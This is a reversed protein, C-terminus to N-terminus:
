EIMDVDGDAGGGSAAATTTTATGGGNTSTGDGKASGWYDEMEADLEEQTKRPRGGRTGRERDRDDGGRAAQQERRAGPRRGGIRGDRRPPSRSRPGREGGGRRHSPVYRDIHDPAPKSVDSLRTPPSVSRDSDDMSNDAPAGSVRDFLSRPPRRATDFPNRQQQQRSPALLTLRIPQGNANAGDFERIASKASTLSTYTVFAVGSSRGARDYRISVNSVPGIRNFLDELDEQTLDYHLNDVRLKAGDAGSDAEPSGRRDRYDFEVGRRSTHRSQDNDDFKDFKDHVWDRDINRSPDRSSSAADIDPARMALRSVDLLAHPSGSSPPPFRHTEAPSAPGRLHMGVKRIGDRPGSELRRDRRGQNNRQPRRESIVDDLSRDM